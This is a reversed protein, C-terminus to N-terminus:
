KMCTFYEKYHAVDRAGCQNCNIRPTETGAELIMVNTECLTCVKYANQLDKSTPNYGNLGKTKMITWGSYLCLAAPRTYRM